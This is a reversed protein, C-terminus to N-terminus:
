GVFCFIMDVTIDEIINRNRGAKESEHWNKGRIRWGGQM